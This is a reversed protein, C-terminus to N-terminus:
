VARRPVHAPRRRSARISSPEGALVAGARSRRAVRATAMPSAGARSDGLRTREHRRLLPDGRGSGVEGRRRWLARLVPRAPPHRDRDLGTDGVLLHPATRFLRRGEADREERHVMWSFDFLVLCLRLGHDRAAALAADMDDFFHAALGRITGDLGWDIGGRGDTFVFWRVIRAGAAAMAAFDQRVVDLHATVGSHSQWINAGFDCGYNPKGHFVTWPYNVGPLPTDPDTVLPPGPRAYSM